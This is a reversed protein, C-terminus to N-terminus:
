KPTIQPIQFQFLTPLDTKSNLMVQLKADNNIYKKFKKLFCPQLIELLFYAYNILGCKEAKLIM